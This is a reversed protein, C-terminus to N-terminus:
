PKMKLWGEQYTDPNKGWGYCFVALRNLDKTPHPIKSIKKGRLHELNVDMIAPPKIAEVTEESLKM